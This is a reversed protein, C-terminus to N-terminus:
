RIEIIEVESNTDGVIVREGITKGKISAALPKMINVLQVGNIIEVGNTHHDVLKVKLEKNNSLFKIKVTSNLGVRNDFLSNPMYVERQQIQTVHKKSHRKIISWESEYYNNDVPKGNATFSQFVLRSIDNYIDLPLVNYEVRDFDNYIVKYGQLHLQERTSINETLHAKFKRRGNENFYIGIIKESEVAEIHILEGDRNLGNMYEKGIRRSLLIPIHVKNVHGSKYCQLLFGTQYIEQIPIVYDAELPEKDTLIYSGSKFLNFYRLIKDTKPQSDIEEFQEDLTEEHTEIILRSSGGELSDDTRVEKEVQIISEQYVYETNPVIEKEEFVSIMNWLPELAKERNTYYEYGRVRFFQWGCRELVKQRMIDNQHQEPGHWKDGDCEIAIKTGDPLLAVLDIRYRGKAVEYQPIVSLQKRIIDNYVDVEFWSDFPEPQTGVRREIPTNFIPQYSNYNKFHDLLKYRLDNTNSLDDLQVSHFLFIQEKARSVAVNFRREDEPKVLAARNHNHATVLSLFIIDREDGQFSSSNGCVIKRKHFEKEGIRKLLLNEIISAQQNGQLTIVGITKGNYNEDDILKGISEAIQNAEPENIIRAGGGEIYGNSCFITVLPELRNESYQKLPYLGKGDPAYFHRNSFEIIEPMCRFHERLVTVGDCFFKAHDFFSFETGYYDSFPIGNLHRKIHPTMTNADVGVYEPSTQKDDGVIIINKTIYLLFIADPGLQSAEDIIVYDYMEQEPQITEAVKYLPMIWCPVSDKCHEMEQQAIKRFKMARKGKGTKGIKKVAMVWADLHQRLSRNQQLGEVVKYWAKKSALKATLKREKRELENLNQILQNEYNVDMLKELQHQANRFYIAQKLNDVDKASFSDDEVLQTTSPIKSYLESRLNKFNLFNEKGYALKEIRNLLEEYTHFDLNNYAEIITEKIPHYGKPVYNNLYTTSQNILEDFESISEKLKSYEAKLISTKLDENDFLKIQLNSISEIALKVAKAEEILKSLRLVENHIQKFFSIKKFLLNGKPEEKGWIESLEIFDQRFSIDKLVTEYEEITDCPSGNVRVAEIFYLREKIERPLFPKKISFTFGSLPNGENLYALLIQADNKLQKLSKGQPYSVEIDKDIKRLDHKEFKELVAKSHNLIQLWEQNRGKLFSEIVASTFDIQFKDVENYFNQLNNLHQFLQEFGSCSIKLNADKPFSGNALKATLNSYEKLQDSTLLKNPDPIEFDFEDTEIQKYNEHLQIFETLRSLLENNEINRFDDEYWEFLPTDRELNEAIETLTGKYKENVEQKRTAKEKIKVLSNSTEAISERTNKLDNEFEDIQSQYQNLNARSLEDNIANVSSQLDQISSSDGSLLNVALDQFEPPLKDKLVELARKTYATILVKKGNALLHCILNAITHSKGTGPPGQVLVKNNRKAKEVIELQEDNYEKPFFIPEIQSANSSNDPSYNDDEINQHIGILDNITPIELSEDGNEINELIKEYLATFSRTNRKRLLLAPSFTINPKSPTRNPKEILHNYSGDPSVREAFMQLADETNSFITEINKEKIYNEVAKEADIINQSDFQDFLDLISDTEIQPASELNPSVFIQSDKQSYEFNIDVRQTLIHRFIKPREDNEKFNLLGVGVVLEYEEGFQQTKNFIRFLQKYVSNLKEYKEHEIRYAEIKENYEILDDIWKKDIYQQLEKELEPFDEISLTEGNIELTEKLNPEDEENLLTPKDIWKELNETLKAFEPKAPEKPKRVKLWYDNDENFDPRIVNEFLENDPIDNLWFKEPYQTEQADIDRVPNSRLKSFEKLYNFIQLYKDKKM